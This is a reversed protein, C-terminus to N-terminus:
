KKPEAEKVAKQWQGLFDSLVAYVSERVKEKRHDPSYNTLLHSKEAFRLSLSLDYTKDAAQVM